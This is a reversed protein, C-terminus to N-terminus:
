GFSANNEIDLDLQQQNTIDRSVVYAQLPQDFRGQLTQALQNEQSAGALNFNFSRDGTGSGSGGGSGLAGAPVTAGASSQFKQRAITAVNLLGSTITAAMAIGKSIPDPFMPNAQVQAAALYTSILAQSINAAKQMKFRKKEIKEQKKRLEEDNRAIKLQISKRQGASLNENNLRERLENNIANTKNRETTIQRNFEGDMFDTLGQQVMMFQEAYFMQEEVKKQLDTKGDDGEGFGSILADKRVIGLEQLKLILSTYKDEVEKISKIEENNAQVISDFLTGSAEGRLKDADEKSIQKLREKYGLETIFETYKRKLEDVHDKTKAKVVAKETSLKLELMNKESDLQNRLRDLQYAERIKRREEESTAESLKDNLEKKLRADQLQKDYRLLANEGSKIDIDLEKPTKFPSIKKSVIKNDAELAALDSYYKKQLKILEQNAESHINHRKVLDSGEKGLEEKASDRKKKIIVESMNFNAELLKIKEENITTGNELSKQNLAKEDSLAIENIAIKEELENVSLKRLQKALEEAEKRKQENFDVSDTAAREIEKNLEAIKEQNVFLAKTFNSVERLETKWITKDRAAKFKDSQEQIGKTVDFESELTKIIDKVDEFLEPGFYSEGLGLLIRKQEEIQQNRKDELPYLEASKEEVLKKAGRKKAEAIIVKTYAKELEISDDITNNATKLNDEYSKILEIAEPYEKKLKRLAETRDELSIRGDQM